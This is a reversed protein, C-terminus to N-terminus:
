SAHENSSNKRAMQFAIRQEGATLSVLVKQNEHSFLKYLRLCYVM